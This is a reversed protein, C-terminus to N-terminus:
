MKKPIQNNLLEPQNEPTQGVEDRNTFFFTNAGPFVSPNDAKNTMRSHELMAQFLPEEQLLVAAENHKGEQYLSRLQHSNNYFSYTICLDHFVAMFDPGPIIKNLCQSLDYLNHLSSLDPQILPLNPNTAITLRLPELQDLKLPTKVQSVLHEPLPVFPYTQTDAITHVYHFGLTNKENVDIYLTNINSQCVTRGILDRSPLELKYGPEIKLFIVTLRNFYTHLFLKCSSSSVTAKISKTLETLQDQIESFLEKSFRIQIKLTRDYNTYESNISISENNKLEYNITSNQGQIFGYHHATCTTYKKNWHELYQPKKEKILADALTEPDFQEM